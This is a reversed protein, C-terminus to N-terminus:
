NGIWELFVIVDYFSTYIFLSKYNIKYVKDVYILKQNNRKIIKEYFINFNNKCINDLPVYPLLHFICYM